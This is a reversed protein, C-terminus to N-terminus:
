NQAPGTVLLAAWPPDQRAREAFVSRIRAAGVEDARELAAWGELVLATPGSLEALVDWLADLNAGFWAPLALAAALLVVVRPAAGRLGTTGTAEAAHVVLGWELDPRNGPASGADWGVLM